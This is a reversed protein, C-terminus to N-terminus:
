RNKRLNRIILRFSQHYVFNNRKELLIASNDRVRVTARNIEAPIQSNDDNKM